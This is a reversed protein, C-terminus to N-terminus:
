QFVECSESCSNADEGGMGKITAAIERRSHLSFMEIIRELTARGRYMVDSPSKRCEVVRVSPCKIASLFGAALEPEDRAALAVKNVGKKICLVCNGLHEPISLDFPMSAWWMLVDEKEFDSFDAMYAVGPKGKLRKPEDARIGLVTVWEGFHEKCYKEFPVLKLRDTCFAGGTNYPTGYKKMMARWPALDPGIDDISVVSYSSPKGLQPNINARLCVLDIGFHRVVARVFEYTAPHEAGTDMFLYKVDIGESKRRAEMLHVLYASTRGGSFSVVYIM